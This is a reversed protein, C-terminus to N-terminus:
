ALGAGSYCSKANLGFFDDMGLARQAQISRQLEFPYDAWNREKSLMFWDSGYMVRKAVGPLRLAEALRTRADQCSKSAEKECRLASWYGTDGYIREGGPSTMLQAFDQTWTTDATDGGFHGLNVLPMQSGEFRKLLARWGEPGGLQDFDNDKGSSHNTHAMVPVNLASCLEWLGWLAKDLDAFSPGLSPSGKRLVNGHLRGALDDRRNSDILDVDWAHQM